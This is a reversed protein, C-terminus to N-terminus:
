LANWIIIVISDDTCVCFVICITIGVFVIVIDSSSRLLLVISICRFICSVICLLLRQDRLIKRGKSM